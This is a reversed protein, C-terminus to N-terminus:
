GVPKPRISTAQACFRSVSTQEVETIALMLGPDLDGLSFLTPIFQQADRKIMSHDSAWNYTVAALTAWSALGVISAIFISLGVRGFTHM